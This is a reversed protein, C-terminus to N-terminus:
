CKLKVHDFSRNMDMNLWSQVQDMYIKDKMTCHFLDQFDFNGSQLGAKMSKMQSIKVHILNGMTLCHFLNPTMSDMYNM